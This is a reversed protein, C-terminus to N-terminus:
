VQEHGVANKYGGANGNTKPNRTRIRHMTEAETIRIVRHLNHGAIDAFRPKPKRMGAFIFHGAPFEASGTVVSHSRAQYDHRTILEGVQLRIFPSVTRRALEDEVRRFGIRLRAVAEIRNRNSGRTNPAVEKRNCALAAGGVRSGDLMARLLLVIARAEPPSAKWPISRARRHSWQWPASPKLGTAEVGFKAPISLGEMQFCNSSKRVWFRM